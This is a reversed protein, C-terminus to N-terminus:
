SLTSHAGLPLSAALASLHDGDMREPRIGAIDELAFALLSASNELRAKDRETIRVTVECDAETEARRDHRRAAIAVTTGRSPIMELRRLAQQRAKDDAEGWGLVRFCAQLSSGAEWATWTEEVRVPVATEANDLQALALVLSMTEDRDLTRTPVDDRALRRMMRQVANSLAQTLDRTHHIDATRLAQVTIWARRGSAAGDGTVGVDGSPTTQLILQAGFPPAAADPIPLLASVSLLSNWAQDNADRSAHLELVASVGATQHIFAVPIGDIDVTEVHAHDALLDVLDQGAGAADLQARHPRMFYRWARVMWQYLLRGRFRVTTAIVVAAVVAVTTITVPRPTGMSAILAVAALQWCLMRGVGVRPRRTTARPRRRTLAGLAAGVPSAGQGVAVSRMRRLVGGTSRSNRAAAVRAADATLQEDLAARRQWNTERTARQRTTSPHGAPAIVQGPGAVGHREARESGAPPAALPSGEPIWAGPAPGREPVSGASGNM